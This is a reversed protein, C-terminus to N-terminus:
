SATENLIIKQPLDTRTMKYDFPQKESIEATQKPAGTKLDYHVLPAPAKLNYVGGSFYPADPCLGNVTFRHPLSFIIVGVILFYLIM